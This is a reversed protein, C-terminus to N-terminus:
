NQAQGEILGAGRIKIESGAVAITGRSHMTELVRSRRAKFVNLPPSAKM